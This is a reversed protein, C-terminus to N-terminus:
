FTLCLCMYLEGPQNQNADDNRVMTVVAAMMMMMMMVAPSARIIFSFSM